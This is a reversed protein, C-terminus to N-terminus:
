IIIGRKRKSAVHLTIKKSGVDLCTKHTFISASGIDYTKIDYQALNTPTAIQFNIQFILHGLMLPCQTIFQHSLDEFM